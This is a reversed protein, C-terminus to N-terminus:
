TGVLFDYEGLVTGSWKDKKIKQLFNGCRLIQKIKKIKMKYEREKYFEM